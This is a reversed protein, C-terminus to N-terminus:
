EITRKSKFYNLLLKVTTLTSMTILVYIMIYKRNLFSERFLDTASLVLLGTGVFWISLFILLNRKTPHTIWRGKQESKKGIAEIKMNVLKKNRARRM